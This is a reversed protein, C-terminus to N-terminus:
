FRIKGFFEKKFKITKTSKALDADLVVIDPNREGLRVLANGYADRTAIKDGPKLMEEDREKKNSKPWRRNASRKARRLAM